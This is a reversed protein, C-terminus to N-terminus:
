RKRKRKISEMKRGEKKNEEEAKRRKNRITQEIEAKTEHVTTNQMGFM